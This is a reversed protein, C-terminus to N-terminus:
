EAQAEGDTQVPAEAAKVKKPKRPAPTYTRSTKKIFLGQNTTKIKFSGAGDKSHRYVQTRFKKADPHVLEDVQYWVDSPDMELLETYMESKGRKAPKNTTTNNLLETDNEFAPTFM